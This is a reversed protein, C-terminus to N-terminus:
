DYAKWPRWGSLTKMKVAVKTSCFVDMMCAAMGHYDTKFGHMKSINKYEKNLHHKARFNIQYLGYSDDPYIPNHTTPDYDSERFAIALFHCVDNESYNADKLVKIIGDMVQLKYRPLGVRKLHRERSNKLGPITSIWSWYTSPNIGHSQLVGDISSGVEHNDDLGIRFEIDPKNKRALRVKYSGKSPQRAEISKKPTYTADKPINLKNGPHIIDHTHTVPNYNFDPNLEGLLKAEIGLKDAIRDFYDGRVVTYQKLEQKKEARDEAITRDAIRPKYRKHFRQTKEALTEEKIDEKSTKDISATEKPTDSKSLDRKAYEAEAVHTKPISEIGSYIAKLRQELDEKIESLKYDSEPRKPITLLYNGSDDRKAKFVNFWNNVMDGLGNLYAVKQGLDIAEEQTYGHAQLFKTLTQKQPDIRCTVYEIGSEIESVNEATTDDKKDSLSAQKIGDTNAKEALSPNMLDTRFSDNVAVYSDILAEELNTSHSNNDAVEVAIENTEEAIAVEVIKGEITVPEALAYRVKEVPISVVRQGDDNQSAKFVNYWVKGANVSVAPINNKKAIEPAIERAKMRSYGHRELFRTLSEDKEIVRPEYEIYKEPGLEATITTFADPDRKQPIYSKMQREFALQAMFVSNNDQSAVLAEELDPIPEGIPADFDQLDNTNYKSLSDSEFLFDDRHEVDAMQASVPVSVPVSESLKTEYSSTGIMDLSYMCIGFAGAAVFTGIRATSLLGKKLIDVPKELVYEATNTVRQYAEAINDRGKKFLFGLPDYRRNLRNIFSQSKNTELHKDVISEKDM